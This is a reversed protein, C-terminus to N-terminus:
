VEIRAIEILVIDETIATPRHTRDSFKGFLAHIAHTFTSALIPSFLPPIIYDHTMFM